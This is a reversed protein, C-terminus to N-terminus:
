AGLEVPEREFTIGEGAVELGEILDLFSEAVERWRSHLERSLKIMQRALGLRELDRMSYVRVLTSPDESVVVGGYDVRCAGGSLSVLTGTLGDTLRRVRAGEECGVESIPGLAEVSLSPAVSLYAYGREDIYTSYEFGRRVGVGKGVLSAHRYYARLRDVLLGKERLKARIKENVLRKLFERGREDSPAAEARGAYKFELLGLPTDVSFSRPPEVGRILALGVVGLRFMAADLGTLRSLARAAAWTLQYAASRPVESGVKYLAVEVGELRERSRFTTLFHRSLGMRERVYAELEEAAREIFGMHGLTASPSYVKVYSLEEEVKSSLGLSAFCRERVLEVIRPLLEYAREGLVEDLSMLNIVVEVGRGYSVTLLRPM